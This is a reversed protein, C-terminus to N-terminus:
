PAPASSVVEVSRLLDPLSGIEIEAWTENNTEDTETLWGDPDATATVRYRGDPLGTIDVTQDDLQWFYPDSWGPTMGMVVSTSGQTGCGQTDYMPTPDPGALTPRALVQDFFCFGAKTQSRLEGGSADFLRYSAGFAIHWHDHGHGGFVLNAGTDRASDDGGDAETFWQAVRWRSDGSSSREARVILPGPGVNIVTASFRLVQTSFDESTASLFDVLPEVALDPAIPARPSPLPALPRGGSVVIAVVIAAVLAVAGLAVGRVRHSV